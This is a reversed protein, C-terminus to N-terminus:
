LSSLVLQGLTGDGTTELQTSAVTELASGTACTHLLIGALARWRTDTTVSFEYRLVM